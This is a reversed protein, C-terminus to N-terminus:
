PVLHARPHSAEYVRRLHEPSVHTYIQTSSLHLHGLLEQVEKLGAGNQLLHSAFSHRLTHPTVGNPLDAKVAYRELTRRVGRDTLRSGRRNLFLADGGASRMVGKRAPLYDEIARVAYSGLVGIRERRGKGVVKITGRGLDTDADDLAVLESVRLGASYLTELLARDRLPVFENGTPASLLRAVQESDLVRPLSRIRKPTRVSAAHDVPAFGEALLYRFFSRLAAAHRAVTARNYEELLLDTLYSKLTPTTICGPDSSEKETLVSAFRTLDSRYAALTHASVDRAHELHLLFDDLYRM